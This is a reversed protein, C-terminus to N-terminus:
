GQPNAGNQPNAGKNRCSQWAVFMQMLLPLAFALMIERERCMGLVVAADLGGEPKQWFKAVQFIPLIPVLPKFLIPISPEAEEKMEGMDEEEEGFSLFSFEEALAAEEAQEKGEGGEGWDEKGIREGIEQANHLMVGVATIQGAVTAELVARVSGAIATLYCSEDLMEGVLEPCGWGNVLKGGVKVGEVGAIERGVAKQVAEWSTSAQLRRLSREAKGREHVKIHAVFEESRGTRGEIARVPVRVSVEVKRWEM